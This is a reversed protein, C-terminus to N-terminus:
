RASTARPRTPTGSPRPASRAKRRSRCNRRAPASAAARRFQHLHHGPQPQRHRRPHGDARLASRYLPRASGDAGRGLTTPATPAPSSAHQARRDEAARQQRGRGRRCDRERRRRAAGPHRRDPQEADAGAGARQQARRQAGGDFGPEDGAVARRQHFQQVGNGALQGLRARRLPGAAASLLRRASRCLRRGRNRGSAPAASVSRARSQRRRCPRQRREGATSTSSSWRSACM